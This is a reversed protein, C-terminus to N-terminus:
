DKKFRHVYGVSVIPMFRQDGYNYNVGIGAGIKAFFNKYNIDAGGGLYWFMKGKSSANQNSHLGSSIFLNSILSQSNMMTFLMSAEFGWIKPPFAGVTIKYGSNYSDYFTISGNIVGPFGIEAGLSRYREPVGLPKPDNRWAHWNSFNTNTTHVMMSDFDQSAIKLSYDNSTRFTIYDSNTNILTASYKGGTKTYVDAYVIKRNAISNKTLKHEIDNEDTIFVIDSTEESIYGIYYKSDHTTIEEMAQASSAMCLLSLMGYIIKNKM